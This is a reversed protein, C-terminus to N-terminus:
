APTEKPAPENTWTLANIGDEDIWREPFPHGACFATSVGSGSRWYMRRDYDIATIPQHDKGDAGLTAGLAIPLVGDEIEASQMQGADNVRFIKM